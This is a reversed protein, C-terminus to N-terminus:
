TRMGPIADCKSNPSMFDCFLGVKEILTVQYRKQPDQHLLHATALGAMGTGVVAVTKTHSPHTKEM